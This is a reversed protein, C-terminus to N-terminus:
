WTIMLVSVSMQWIATVENTRFGRVDSSASITAALFGTSLCSRQSFLRSTDIVRQALNYLATSVKPRRCLAAVTGPHSPCSVAENRM